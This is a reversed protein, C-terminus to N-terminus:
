VQLCESPFDDGHSHIENICLDRADSNLVVFNVFCLYPQFIFLSLHMIDHHAVPPRDCYRVSEMTYAGAVRDVRQTLLGQTYLTRSNFSTM